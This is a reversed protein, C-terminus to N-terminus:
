RGELLEDQNNSECKQCGASMGDVQDTGDTQEREIQGEQNLNDYEHNIHSQGGAPGEVQVNIDTNRQEEVQNNNERKERGM